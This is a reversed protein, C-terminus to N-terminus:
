GFWWYRFLKARGLRNRKTRRQSYVLGAVFGALLIASLIQAPEPM